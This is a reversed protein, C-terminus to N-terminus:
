GATGPLSAVIREPTMREFWRGSPVTGWTEYTPDYRDEDCWLAVAGPPCKRAPHTPGFLALTPARVAGALHMLGCDTTVVTRAGRLVAAAQLLTTRGALNITAAGLSPYHAREAANGLFVVPGLAACRRVLDEFLAAPLRRVASHERPNLGGANILVRYDAPLAPLPEADEAAQGQPADLLRDDRDVELGAAALLDLGYDVEHRIAGYAVARTHWRGAGDRDFGIRERVGSLRALAGFSWHKDLVFVREQAGLRALVSALRWAGAATFSREDFTEIRDCAPHGAIAAASAGGALCTIHASPLARRLQRLMPTAMLLDGMAGFKWVLVNM